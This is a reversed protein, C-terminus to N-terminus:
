RKSSSPSDAGVALDSLRGAILPVVLEDAEVGGHAGLLFRKPTAAGPSLYSLSGPTRVFAIVDGIREAFEPHFPPPGFVGARAAVGRRVVPTGPALRRRLAETLADVRGARAAFFGARRDGALPRVMERTLTPEQEVAVRHAVDARVQGHDGTIAVTISRARARPLEVTTRRILDVIRDMEMGFWRPDPGVLHQITDLEAWYLVVVRPPRPRSLVTTLQHVLHTATAYGVFEAGDYLLRSFGSGEFIDRTIATARLGRRFLTPAATLDSPTWGPGILLDRPGAGVPTMNLMDGVVGFKPLYQRYGILGHRGPAVGTSLSVLAATTTSPFVTTIPHAHAGWVRPAEGGRAAWTRFPSWGLADVLFLLVPGPHARAGFPDLDDSLPPALSPAGGLEGGGARHVSVALNVISRGDYRPVPLGTRPDVRWLRRAEPDDPAAFPSRTM